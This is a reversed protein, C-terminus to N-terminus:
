TVAQTIGSLDDPELQHLLHVEGREDFVVARAESAELALRDVFPRRHLSGNLRREFPDRALRNADLSGPAGIATHM